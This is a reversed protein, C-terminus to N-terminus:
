EAKAAAVKRDLDLRRFYVGSPFDVKYWDIFVRYKERDKHTNFLNPYKGVCQLCFIAKESFTNNGCKPYLCINKCDMCLMSYQRRHKKHCNVCQGQHVMGPSPPTCYDEIILSIEKIPIYKALESAVGETFRHYSFWDMTMISITYIPTTHVKLIYM